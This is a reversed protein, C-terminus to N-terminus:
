HQNLKLALNIFHCMDTKRVSESFSRGLLRIETVTPAMLWLHEAFRTDNDITEVDDRSS